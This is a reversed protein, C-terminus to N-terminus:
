RKDAIVVDQYTLARTRGCWSGHRIPARIALGHAAFAERVHGEDYAVVSEPHAPDEISCVGMRHALTWSCGGGAIAAASEENMLFYTVLCRGGRDLVRAIEALYRDMAEPLLHTFVSTLFVLDFTRDAYPFEYEAAAYRGAPNYLDHRVDATQFRFRPFRPTIARACWEICPGSVDFGEYSGKTLFRTLPLAMRGSGCGVDLVAEDPRLQCLDQFHGLYENGVASFDSWEANGILRILGLPPTLDRGSGVAPSTGPAAGDPKQLVCLTQGARSPRWDLVVWGALRAITSMLERSTVVNRVQSWRAALPVGASAVFVDAGYPTDIPLCTVLCLGRPRTIRLAEKLYRYADEHEMHTFVSYACVVDFAADPFGLESAPEVKWSVRCASEIADCRRRAREIMTPSIDVGVYEGHALFPIAFQALRGVGCGLDLLAHEPRLGSERLEELEARGIGDFDGDGVVKDDTTGAAVSEYLAQYDLSLIGDKGM